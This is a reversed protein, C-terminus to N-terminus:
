MFSLSIFLVVTWFLLAFLEFSPAYINELKRRRNKIKKVLRGCDVALFIVATVVLPGAMDGRLLNYDNNTARLMFISILLPKSLYNILKRFPSNKKENPEDFQNEEIIEESTCKWCSEFSDENEENCKKCVWM